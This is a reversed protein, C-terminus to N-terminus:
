LDTGAVITNKGLGEPGLSQYGGDVPLDTGTIFSADDSLLFLVANAVETPQGLRALMCFDGWIVDFKERDFNAAKDNERTWIWGPSVSNVRINFPALDMAMCKTLQNVAGKAANYTWRKPQAIVGSISSINVMSGGGNNKMVESALSAMVAFAIPGVNLSREWDYRTADTYKAIFSFANNVLYDISKYKKVTEDIVYKCFQDEAMDGALILPSYGEDAFAIEGEKIDKELATVTVNVGRKLLELAIAFGIGHSGGTVIATKNLFCNKLAIVPNSM